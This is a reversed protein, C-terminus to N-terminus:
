QFAALQVYNKGCRIDNEFCIKETKSPPFLKRVKHMYALSANM